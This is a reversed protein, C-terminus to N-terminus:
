VHARGIKHAMIKAFDDQSALAAADSAGKESEGAQTASASALVAAFILAWLAYNTSGVQQM